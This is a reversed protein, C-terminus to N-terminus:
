HDTLSVADVDCTLDVIFEVGARRKDKDLLNATTLHLYRGIV